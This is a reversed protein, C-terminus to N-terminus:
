KSGTAPRFDAHCGACAHGVRDLQRGIEGAQGEAAIQTLVSAEDALHRARAAFRERREDSDFRFAQSEALAVAAAALDSALEAIDNARRAREHDIQLPTLTREFVLMETRRMRERLAEFGEAHAVEQSAATSLCVSLVLSMM